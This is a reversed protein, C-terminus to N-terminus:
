AAIKNFIATLDPREWNDLRGSRDKAENANDRRTRIAGYPKGEGDNFTCLQFVEDFMYPMHQDLVRGPMLPGNLFGGTLEDKVRGQKAIFVINKGPMDRFKRMISLVDQAMDGYARQGNTEAALLAQLATEAIESVSDLAVTKVWAWQPNTMIQNYVWELDKITKVMIYPLRFQKLSLLGQEASLILVGPATALLRTKGSGALGYVMVKVGNNAILSTDQIQLYSPPQWVQYALANL